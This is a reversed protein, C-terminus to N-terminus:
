ACSGGGRRRVDPVKKSYRTSAFQEYNLSLAQSTERVLDAWEPTDITAPYGYRYEIRSGTGM